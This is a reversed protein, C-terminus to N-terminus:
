SLCVNPGPDLLNFPSDSYHGNADFGNPHDRRLIHAAEHLATNALERLSTVIGKQAEGLLWPDLHIKGEYTAGFHGATGQSDSSGRFVKDANFREMFRDRMEGCLRRATTDAITTDPRVFRRLADLIVTSDARTLAKECKPDVSPDCETATTDPPPPTDGGDPPPPETGPDAGGDEPVPPSYCFPYEGGYRCGTAEV